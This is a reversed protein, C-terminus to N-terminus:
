LKCGGQLAGRQASWDLAPDIFRSLGAGHPLTGDVAAKVIEPSLFALNLAQRVSRESCGERAAIQDPGSVAGSM